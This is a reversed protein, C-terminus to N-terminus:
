AKRPFPIPAASARSSPQKCSRARRSRGRVTRRTARISCGSSAPSAANVASKTRWRSISISTPMRRCPAGRPALGIAEDIEGQEELVCGLNYRGIGNWPDLQVAASFEARAAARDGMQYLAVGLNIHADVWHPALDLVNRNTEIADPLTQATECDLATQFLDEPTPSAMAHLQCAAAGHRLSLGVAAQHPQVPSVGPPIVLM